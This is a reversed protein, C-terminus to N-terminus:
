AEMISASCSFLCSLRCNASCSAESSPCFPLAATPPSGPILFALGAQSLLILPLIAASVFLPFHPTLTPQLLPCPLLVQEQLLHAKVSKGGSYKPSPLFLFLFWPLSRSATERMRAVRMRRKLLSLLPNLPRTRIRRSRRSCLSESFLFPSLHLKAGGGGGRGAM